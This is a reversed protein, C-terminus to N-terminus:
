QINKCYERWNKKRLLFNCESELRNNKRRNDEKLLYQLNNENHEGGRTLPVIHDVEYEEPCNDYIQDIVRKNGTVKIGSWKIRYRSSGKRNNRQIAQKKEEPTNYKRIYYEVQCRQSCFKKPNSYEKTFIQNCQPCSISVPAEGNRRIGRNNYSASCSHSCFKQNSTPKSCYLCNVYDNSNLKM